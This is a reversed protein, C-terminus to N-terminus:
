DSIKIAGIKDNLTQYDEQLLLKFIKNKEDKEDVIPSKLILQCMPLSKDLGQGGKNHWSRIGDINSLQITEQRVVNEDKANTRVVKVVVFEVKNSM